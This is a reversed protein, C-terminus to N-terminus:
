RGIHDHEDHVLATHLFQAGALKRDAGIGARRGTRHPAICGGLGVREHVRLDERPRAGLAQEGPDGQIAGRQAVIQVLVLSEVALAPGTFLNQSAADLSIVTRFLYEMRSLFYGKAARDGRPPFIISLKRWATRASRRSGIRQDVAVKVSAKHIPAFVVTNLRTLEIRSRGSGNGSEPRM